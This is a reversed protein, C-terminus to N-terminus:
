NEVVLPDRPKFNGFLSKVEEHNEDVKNELDEIKNEVREFGHEVTRNLRALAELMGYQEDLEGWFQQDERFSEEIEVETIANM